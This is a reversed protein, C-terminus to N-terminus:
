RSKLVIHATNGTSERLKYNKKYKGCFIGFKTINKKGCLKERNSFPNEQTELSIGM